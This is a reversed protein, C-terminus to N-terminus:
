TRAGLMSRRASTNTQWADSLSLGVTAGIGDIGILDEWAAQADKPVDMASIAKDRTDKIRARRGEDTAALREAKVAEDGARHALAAPRAMDM